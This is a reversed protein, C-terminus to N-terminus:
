DYAPVTLDQKDPKSCASPKYRNFNKKCNYNISVVRSYGVIPTADHCNYHQRIIRTYYGINCYFKFNIITMSAGLPVIVITKIIVIISSPNDNITM